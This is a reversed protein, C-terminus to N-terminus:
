DNAGYEHMVDEFEYIKYDNEKYWNILAYGNDNSYCTYKEYGKWCNWALYSDGSTWKKGLKDFAKLLKNAKEETDCHIALKEKSNWFEELTIKNNKMNKLREEIEKIIKKVQQKDKRSKFDINNLGDRIMLLFCEEDTNM